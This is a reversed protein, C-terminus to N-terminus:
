NIKIDQLLFSVESNIQYFQTASSYIKEGNNSLECVTAVVEQVSASYEESIASLSSIRESIKKFSDEIGIMLQSSYELMDKFSSITQITEENQKSMKKSSEYIEKSKIVSNNVSSKVSNITITSQEALQVSSDVIVTMEQMSSVSRSIQKTTGSLLSDIEQTANSSREALKRVEDAVVAFGKGHEGARAAEIAANLALLNTQSAIDNITNIIEGIQNSSHGLESINKANENAIEKIKLISSSTENMVTVGKEAENLATEGNVNINESLNLIQKFDEMFKNLVEVSHNISSLQEKSYETLQTVSGMIGSANESIGNIDETQQVSANSIQSMVGEVEKSSRYGLESQNALSEIQENMQSISYIVKSFIETLFAVCRNYANLENLEKSVNDKKFTLDKDAIRELNESLDSILRDKKISIKNIHVILGIYIVASIVIFQIISPAISQNNIVGRSIIYMFYIAICSLLIQVIGLILIVNISSNKKM